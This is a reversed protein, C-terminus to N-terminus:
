ISTLLFGYLCEHWNQTLVRSLKQESIIIKVKMVLLSDRVYGPSSYLAFMLCILVPLKRVVCYHVRHYDSALM